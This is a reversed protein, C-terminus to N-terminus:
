RCCSASAGTSDARRGTGDAKLEGAISTVASNDDVRRLELKVNLSALQAQTRGYTELAGTLGDATYARARVALGGLATGLVLDSATIEPGDLPRVDIRRDASGVLGGPERVVTRMMYSGAPVNFQVRWTGPALPAGPAPPPPCRFPTRAAPSSGATACTARWSCSTPSTRRRQIAGAAGANLSLVVRQSGAEPAKMVYTTYDVKLGQQVFPAGLVRDIARKKDAAVREPPLAYGTRASVRAGPRTM